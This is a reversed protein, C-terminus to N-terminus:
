KKAKEQLVLQKAISESIILFDHGIHLQLPSEWGAADTHLTHWKCTQHSCCRCLTITAIAIITKRRGWSETIQRLHAKWGSYHTLQVGPHGNIGGPEQTCTDENQEESWRDWAVCLRESWCGRMGFCATLNLTMMYNANTVRDDCATEQLSSSWTFAFHPLFGHRVRQETWAWGDTQDLSISLPSSCCLWPLLLKWHTVKRITNKFGFM